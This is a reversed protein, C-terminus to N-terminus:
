QTSTENQGGSFRLYIKYTKHRVKIIKQPSITSLFAENEDMLAQMIAAEEESLQSLVQKVFDEAIINELENSADPDPLVELLSFEEGDSTTFSMPVPGQLFQLAGDISQKTFQSFDEYLTKCKVAEEVSGYTKLIKNALSKISKPYYVVTNFLDRASSAVAAIIYPLAYSSFKVGRSEDYDLAAKWLAMRAEQLLDEIDHKSFRSYKSYVAHLALGQNNDFLIQAEEMSAM